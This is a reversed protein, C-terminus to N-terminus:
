SLSEYDVNQVKSNVQKEDVSNTIIIDWLQYVIITSMLALHWILGCPVWVDSMVSVIHDRGCTGFTMDIWMASM